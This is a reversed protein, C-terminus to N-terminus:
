SAERLSTRSVRRGGAPGDEPMAWQKALQDVVAEIDRRELAEILERDM